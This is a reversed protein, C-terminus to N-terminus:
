TVFRRKFDMQNQEFRDLCAQSI